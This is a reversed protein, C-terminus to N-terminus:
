ATLAGGSAPAATSAHGLGGYRRVRRLVDDAVREIVSRPYIPRGNELRDTVRLIALLSGPTILEKRPAERGGVVVFRPIPEWAFGEVMVVDLDGPLLAIAASLDPDRPSPGAVRRFVALQHPSALAVARAGAEYLRFSDKGPQDAV